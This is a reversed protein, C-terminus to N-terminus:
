SKTDDNPNLDPDPAPPPSESPYIRMAFFAFFLTLLGAIVSNHWGLDFFPGLPFAYAWLAFALTSIIQNVKAVKVNKTYGGIWIPTCILCTLFVIGGLWLRLHLHDPGEQTSILNIAATYLALVDAPIYKAVREGQERWTERAASGTMAAGTNEYASIKKKIPPEVLRSM